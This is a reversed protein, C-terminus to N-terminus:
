INVDPLWAEIQAAVQQIEQFYAQNAQLYRDVMEEDSCDGLAPAGLRPGSNQQFGALAEVMSRDPSAGLSSGAAVNPAFTSFLFGFASLTVLHRMM